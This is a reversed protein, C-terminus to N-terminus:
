IFSGDRGTLVDKVIKIAKEADPGEAKVKIVTGQSAGLTMMSLISKLNIITSDKTITASEINLDKIKTIILASPRAHLGHPLTITIDEEMM